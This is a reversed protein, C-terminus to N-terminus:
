IQLKQLVEIGLFGRARKGNGIYINNTAELNYRDANEILYSSFSKVTQVSTKM